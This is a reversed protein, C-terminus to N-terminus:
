DPLVISADNVMELLSEDGFESIEPKTNYTYQNGRQIVRRPGREPKSSTRIVNSRKEGLRLNPRELSESLKIRQSPNATAIKLSKPNLTQNYQNYQNKQKNQSNQNNQNNQARSPRKQFSATRSIRTLPKHALTQPIPLIPKPVSEEVDELIM